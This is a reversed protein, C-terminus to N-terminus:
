ELVPADRLVIINGSDAIVLDEVGDGDIDGAAVGSASAPMDIATTGSVTRTSPDMKALVVSTRTVYAIRPPGQLDVHVLAFGEPTESAANVVLPQNSSFMFNGQNFAVVLSRPGANPGTLLVADLKGDGDVDAFEFQGEPSVRVPIQIEGAAQITPGPAAHAPVLASQTELGLPAVAVASLTGSGDVDGAALLMDLRPTLTAIGYVPKFMNPLMNSAVAPLFQPPPPTAPALWYRFGQSVYQADFDEGVAVLDVEGSKVFPGAAIALPQVGYKPDQLVYPALPQRDGGGILLSVQAMASQGPPNAVVLLDSLTTAEGKRAVFQGVTAFQGVPAPNMPPGFPQGWAIAVDNPRSPDSAQEALAVDNVRDGDFDGVEVLTVPGSSPLSFSNLGLGGNGIFFDADLVGASIAVVDPLGDANMDAIRAGTWQGQNKIVTILYEGTGPMSILIRDPNVFDARGDGNIDAAAVPCRMEVPIGGSGADSGADAGADVAVVPVETSVVKLKHAEDPTGDDAHFSGDGTGYAVYAILETQSTQLTTQVGLILDVHGDGDVDAAVASGLMGTANAKVTTPTAGVNPVIKGADLLCPSYVDAHDGFTLVVQDCSVAGPTDVFRGGILPATLASPGAATMAIAVSTGSPPILLLAPGQDTFFATSDGALSDYQRLQAVSAKGPLSFLPYAVPALTRDSRGLMVDIAGGGTGGPLVFGVDTLGDGDFDTLQPSALAPGIVLTDALALSHDSQPEYYHIRAKSAGAADIAARAMVDARGDGDFDGTALRWADAAVPASARSFSGSPQRCIGDTGCGWGTPCEHGSMATCDLRCAGATGPPRCFSGSAGPLSFTDCDEGSDIVANGCTGSAIPPLNRCDLLLGSLALAPLSLALLFPRRM